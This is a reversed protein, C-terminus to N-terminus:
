GLLYVEFDFFYEVVMVGYLVILLGDLLGVYIFVYLM